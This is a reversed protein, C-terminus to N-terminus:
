QLVDSRHTIVYNIVQLLLAEDETWFRHGSNIEIGPVGFASAIKHQSKPKCIKDHKPIIFQPKPWYDEKLKRAEEIFNFSMFDVASAVDVWKDSAWMINKPREEEGDHDRYQDKAPSVPLAPVANILGPAKSYAWNVLKFVDIYDLSFLDRHSGDERTLLNTIYSTVSAITRAIRGNERESLEKIAKVTDYGTLKRTGGEILALADEATDISSIITGTLLRESNPLYDEELIRRMAGVSALSHHIPYISTKHGYKSLLAELPLRQTDRGYYGERHPEGCCAAEYTVVVPLGTNQHWLAPAIGNYSAEKQFTNGEYKPPMVGMGNVIALIHDSGEVDGFEDILIGNDAKIRQPSQYEAM